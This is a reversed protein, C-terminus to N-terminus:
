ADRFNIRGRALPGALSLDRGRQVHRPRILLQFPLPDIKEYPFEFYLIPTKRINIIKSLMYCGPQLFTPILQLSSFNTFFCFNSLSCFVKPSWQPRRSDPELRNRLSTLLSTWFVFRVSLQQPRHFVQLIPQRSRTM